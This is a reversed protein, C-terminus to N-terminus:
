GDFGGATAAEAADSLGTLIVSDADLLRDELALDALGLPDPEAGSEEVFDLDRFIGEPEIEEVFFGHGPRLVVSGIFRQIEGFGEDQSCGDAFGL